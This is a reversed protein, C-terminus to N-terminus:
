FGFPDALLNEGGQLHPIPVEKGNIKVRVKKIDIHDLLRSYRLNKIRDSVVSLAKNFFDPPIRNCFHREQIVDGTKKDYECTVRDKGGDFRISVIMSTTKNAYTAVCHHMFAGEESYEEDRKLITPIFQYLKGEFEYEIPSEIKRVTRNDYVYEQSWGKKITSILKTLELHETHFESYNTARMKFTPDYERLKTAMDIHDRFLGYLGSVARSPTGPSGDSNILSNTIKIINEKEDNDLNYITIRRRENIPGASVYSTDKKQFLKLVSENLNGFYKNYDKGFFSAFHKLESIDLLPNEHVLKNLLKSKIGYSDLISMILKRDNRKLYKEGPYQFRIFEHFNNPTKIKKREVFFEIFSRLLKNRDENKDLDNISTFDQGLQELICKIFESDDIEKIFKSYHTDNKNVTNTFNFFNNSSILLEIFSFMNKRFRTHPKGRQVNTEGVTFNGTVLDITLSESHYRKKFYKKNFGRYRTTKAAKCVLKGNELKVTRDITVVTISSFPRVYHKKIHRDETTFFNGERFGNFMMMPIRTGSEAGDELYFSQTIRKGKKPYLTMEALSTSFLRNGQSSDKIHSVLVKDLVDFLDGDANTFNQNGLQVYSKSYREREDLTCYDKAVSIIAYNFRQHLLEM